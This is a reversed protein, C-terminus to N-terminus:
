IPLHLYKFYEDRPTHARCTVDLIHTVGSDILEKTKFGADFPGM